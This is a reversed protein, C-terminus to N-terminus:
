LLDREPDVDHLSLEVLEIGFTIAQQQMLSVVEYYATLRDDKFAREAAPL